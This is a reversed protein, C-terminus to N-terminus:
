RNLPGPRESSPEAPSEPEASGPPEAVQDSLHPPASVPDSTSSAPPQPRPATDRSDGRGDLSAADAIENFTRRAERTMRGITRALDITKAPGLAIFAVVLIVLLELTGIGFFNVHDLGPNGVCEARPISCRARSPAVM